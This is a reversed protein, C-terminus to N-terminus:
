STTSAHLTGEPGVRDLRLLTPDDELGACSLELHEAFFLATEQLM